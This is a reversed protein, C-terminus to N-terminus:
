HGEGPKDNSLSSVGSVALIYASSRLSLVRALRLRLSPWASLRATGASGVEAEAGCCAGGKILERM